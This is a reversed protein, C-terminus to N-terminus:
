RHTRAWERTSRTTRPVPQSALAYSGCVHETTVDRMAEHSPRGTKRELPRAIGLFEYEAVNLGVMRELRIGDDKASPPPTAINKGSAAIM